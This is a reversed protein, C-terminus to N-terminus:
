IGDIQLYTNIMSINYIILILNLYLMSVDTIQSIQIHMEDPNPNM